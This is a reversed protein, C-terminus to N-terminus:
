GRFRTHFHVLDIQHAAVLRALKQQFWRQTQLYTLAHFLFPRKESVRRPLLRLITLKGATLTEPEGPMQETLLVLKEIAADAELRPVIHSFYTAAGGVAPPYLPTLLLIRM